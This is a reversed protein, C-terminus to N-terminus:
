KRIKIKKQWTLLNSIEAPNELRPAILPLHVEPGALARLLLVFVDRGALLIM